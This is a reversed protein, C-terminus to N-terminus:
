SLAPLTNTHYGAVSFLSTTVRQQSQWSLWAAIRLTVSCPVTSVQWPVQCASLRMQIFLHLPTLFCSQVQAAPPGPKGTGRANRQRVILLVRGVDRGPPGMRVSGRLCRPHLRRGVHPRLNQWRIIGKGLRLSPWFYGMANCSLTFTPKPSQHKLPRKGIIYPEITWVLIGQQSIPLFM